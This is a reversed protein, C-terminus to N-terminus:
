LGAFIMTGTGTKGRFHLAGGSVGPVFATSVPRAVAPFIWEKGLVLLVTASRVITGDSFTAAFFGERPVPVVSQDMAAVLPFTCVVATGTTPTGPPISGRATISGFWCLEHRPFKFLVSKGEAHYVAVGSAAHAAPITLGGALVGALVLVVSIRRVM